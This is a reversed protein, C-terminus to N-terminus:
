CSTPQFRGAWKYSICLLHHQRDHSRPAGQIGESADDIVLFFSCTCCSSTHVNDINEEKRSLEEVIM